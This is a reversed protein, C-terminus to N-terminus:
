TGTPSRKPTPTPTVTGPPQQQLYPAIGGYVGALSGATGLLSGVTALNQGQQQAGQLQYPTIAARSGALNSIVGLNQQGQNQALWAQLAMNGYGQQAAQAKNSQSIRAATRVNTLSDGLIPSEASTPPSSQVARYGSLAEKEGEALAEEAARSGSAGLTKEWEPTAKRQFGEADAIQRKVVDNMRQQTARANAISLGTGAATLALGAITAVGM